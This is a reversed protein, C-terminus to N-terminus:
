PGNIVVLSEGQELRHLADPFASSLFVQMQITRLNGCRVLLVQPPSGLLASLDFFDKDKTVMVIDEFRRAAAYLQEDTCQELGIEVVHKAVVKFRSGLWCALEPDLQADLWFTV